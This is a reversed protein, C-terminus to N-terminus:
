TATTGKEILSLPAPRRATAGLEIITAVEIREHLKAGLIAQSDGLAYCQGMAVGIPFVSYESILDNTMTTNGVPFALGCTGLRTM